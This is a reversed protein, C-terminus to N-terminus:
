NSSGSAFYRVTVDLPHDVGLSFVRVADADDTLCCEVFQSCGQDALSKNTLIAVPPRHLM